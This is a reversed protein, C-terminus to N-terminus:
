KIEIAKMKKKEIKKKPIKLSLIGNKYSADINEKDAEEPLAFSQYFGAYSQSLAYSDEKKVETKHKTEAKVEISNNNIQLQIDKKDVGPMEIEATFHDKEEGVDVLARRYDDNVALDRSSRKFFPETLFGEFLNDMKRQFRRMEDFMNKRMIYSEKDKKYYKRSCSGKV